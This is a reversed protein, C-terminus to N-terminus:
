QPPSINRDASITSSLGNADSSYTKYKSIHTEATAATEAVQWIFAILRM